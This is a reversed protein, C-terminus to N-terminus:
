PSHPGVARRSIIAALPPDMSRGHTVINCNLYHTGVSTKEYIKRTKTTIKNVIIIGRKEQTLHLPIRKRM